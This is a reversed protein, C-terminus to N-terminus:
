KLYPFCNLMIDSRNEESHISFKRKSEPIHFENKLVSEAAHYGCMGHVGGGPPTSSSCFYIGDAPTSYPDFLGVPRTFLQSIDQRGGNIDGGIYNANYQQFDDTNMTHKEEIIDKFGPAFREIQNEIARTMDVKSGNPVHCYAWLTHRNDPTRSSDFLSQQAVLIFPNAPHGGKAVIKESDAIEDFTGGVHVTGARRCQNDKWPVPEKLIYDVKFVGSGMKFKELKRRYSSSFRKGCINLVQRPTLDFLITKSSPLEDIDEVKWGTETEGGLAHFCDRLADALSQSGGKPMPWGTTHGTGFFILGIASTALKDLPLISHAAMGAFLAKAKQTKFKKQFLSAPQLGKLGFSAMKLPNGPIHFPGLLDKTLDNWANCIPEVVNKYTKEDEQLHFATQALDSFMIAASSDELPHAAPYDPHIWELGHKDLPLNRFFPSAVAMPHIASCIDHHFGERLLEKTRMGGGLTDGAEVIKVSLGEIALRIGAAFGNPGSGVVVADYM